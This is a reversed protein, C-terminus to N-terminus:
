EANMELDSMKCDRATTMSAMQVWQNSKHIFARKEYSGSFGGVIIFEGDDGDLAVMCHLYLGFPLPTFYNFTVGDTTIETTSLYGARYGGSILFGLQQHHAGAAINRAEKMRSLFIPIDFQSKDFENAIDIYAIKSDHIKIPQETTM